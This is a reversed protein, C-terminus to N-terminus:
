GAGAAGAADAGLGGADGERCRDGDLGGAAGALHHLRLRHAGASKVGNRKPLRGEDMAHHVLEVLADAMRQGHTREDDPGLRKSLSDLATRLVAGGEADLLGDIVHMGDILPSIHLRRRQFDEERRPLFRRPRRCPPRLPLPLASDLGFAAAGAGADGEDFRDRKDGLQDRLHCLLSASQYGIEGSRLAQAVKPLSELQSGVCLRDAASTASVGCLRSLWTVV